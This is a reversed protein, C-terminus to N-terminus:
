YINPVTHCCLLSTPHINSLGRLFIVYITLLRYVLSFNRQKDVSVQMIHKVLEMMRLLKAIEYYEYQRQNINFWGKGLDGLCMRLIYTVNELWPGKLYKILQLM